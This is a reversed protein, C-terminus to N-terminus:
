IRTIKDIIAKVAQITENLRGNQNEIRYDYIDTHKLWKKTYNMRDKLYEGAVGDRNKIREELVDIPAIILIAPINPLKKKVDMVGQYDIKWIVVKDCMEAKNIEENTVGYFNDNYHKAYEFFEKNEIKKAFEDRSIFYYPHGNSETPRMSRTTTTIVRDFPILKALGEIVSDQGSGSPGSIIILKNSM